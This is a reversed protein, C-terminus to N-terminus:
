YQVLQKIKKAPEKSEGIVTPISDSLHFVYNNYNKELDNIMSTLNESTVKDIDVSYNDLNLKQMIGKTKAEYSIAIVPVNSSLAFINSHMRTGILFTLKSYIFKMERANLQSIDLENIVSTSYKSLKNLIEKNALRDDEYPTPGVVQPILVVEYGKNVLHDIGKAVSELYNSYLKEPNGSNPFKWQRLTVGVLKGKNGNFTDSIEIESPKLSFASDSVVKVNKVGIEELFQKSLDERVYLIDAKALVYSSLKKSMKSIFPGITQSYAIVKKGKWIAFLIQYLHSILSPEILYKHNSLLFGGGCSVVIDAENYWKILKSKRKDSSDSKNKHKIVYILQNLVILARKYYPLATDPYDFIQPLTEIELNSYFDKDSEWYRSSIAIEANEVEEKISDIMSLIIGADGKNQISHANIIL